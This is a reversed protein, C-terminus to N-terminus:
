QGTQPTRPGRRGEGKSGGRHKGPGFGQRMTDAKTRQEPTLVEYVQSFVREKEFMMAALLQGQQATLERVKAEDFPSTRSAAKLAQRTERLQKMHPEVAPRETSLITKVQERQTETLELKEAMRALQRAGGQGRGGRGEMRSESGSRREGSRAKQAYVLIGSTTLLVAAALVILLRKRM